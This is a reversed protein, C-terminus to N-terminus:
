HCWENSQQNGYRINNISTKLLIWWPRSTSFLCSSLLWWLRVCKQRYSKWSSIEISWLFSLRFPHSPSSVDIGVYCRMTDKGKILKVNKNNLIVQICTILIQIFAVDPKEFYWKPFRDPFNREVCNKKTTSYNCIQMDYWIMNNPIQTFM